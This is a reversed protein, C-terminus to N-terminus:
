KQTNNGTNLMSRLSNELEINLNTTDFHYTKRFTNLLEQYAKNFNFDDELSKPKNNKYNSINQLIILFFDHITKIMDKSLCIQNKWFIIRFDSQIYEMLSNGNDTQIFRFKDVLIDIAEIIELTKERAIKNADTRLTYERDMFQRKFAKNNFYFSPIFTILGGLLIGFIAQLFGSMGGGRIMVTSRSGQNM